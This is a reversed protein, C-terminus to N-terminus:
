RNVLMTAVTTLHSMLKKQVEPAIGCRGLAITMCKLWDDKVAADIDVHAHMDRINTHGYKQAYLSPGGLFGSLFNFQEERSHAVGHGLKHLRHLRHGEPEHEVIDYFTEVIRRLPVEGGLLDYLLPGGDRGVRRNAHAAMRRENINTM